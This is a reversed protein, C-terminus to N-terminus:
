GISIQDLLWQWLRQWLGPRRLREVERQQQAKLRKNHHSAARGNPSLPPLDAHRIKLAPQVEKGYVLYKDHDCGLIACKSGSQKWCAEHYMTGCAACSVPQLAAEDVHNEVPGACIPCHLSLRNAEVIDEATIQILPREQENM